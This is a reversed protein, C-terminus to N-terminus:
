LNFTYSYKIMIARSDYLPPRPTKAGRATNIGENIVLYLDNGEKPNYRIRINAIAGDVASNYQVFASASFKTSLTALLRLQAIHAILRQGRAPFEVWDLEYGGGLNFDSSIGWIPKVSIIAKRGDYFSGGDVMVVFSLLGGMATQFYGTIGAFDYEGPPM